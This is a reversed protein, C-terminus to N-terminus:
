AACETAREPRSSSRLLRFAIPAACLASLASLLFLSELRAKGAIAGLVPNAIGLALDLCATYAGMTLGRSQPPARRVAEVGFSPYVLAYAIGTLGVGALVVICQPALWIVAQGVAEILVCALAVNAGGIRDPQNGFILRGIVFAASLTTFATWPSGWGRSVFLLPMFTTIAGFGICSLALGLGPLGIADLVKGYSPRVHQQSSVAPLAVAPLLTVVPVLTTALAIADFGYRAYLASGAPAGVAYAFYIATGVMSMVTGTNQPGVLTLGWVLAGAVIFSDAAGLLARGLLLITVSMEPEGALRLSVCYFIGAVAAILLGTVVARKAGRHDAQNGAFFRSLLSAGFTAGGVLGVVFMSLGLRQHVYLPLVPMALGIALFSVFVIAATPLLTRVIRM